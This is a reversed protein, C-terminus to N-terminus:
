EDPRGQGPYEYQAAVPQPMDSYLKALRNANEDLSFDSRATISIRLRNRAQRLLVRVADADPGLKPDYASGADLALAYDRAGGCYKNVLIPLGASLYEASKTAFVPEALERELRNKPTRYSLISIDANQLANVTEAPSNTSTFTIADLLDGRGFAAVSNRLANHDSKTILLLRAGPCHERFSAFARWLENPQHWTNDALYGAYALVPQGADLRTLDAIRAEDLNRVEVNLYILATRRAGLADFRDRMPTSVVNSVDAAALMEKERAKWFLFARSGDKWRGSLRAEEPMLSRADFVVKVPLRYRARVKLALHTAVYSRCQIVDANRLLIERALFRESGFTFLPLQWPKPHVGVPPVPIRRTRFGGAGLRDRIAEIQRHYRWKERAMGSHIWPYGAVLGASEINPHRQLAAVVEVVQGGYVSSLRPVEGWTLFLVRM